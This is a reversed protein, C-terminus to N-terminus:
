MRLYGPRVLVANKAACDHAHAVAAAVDNGRLYASVFGATFADGSGITNVPTIRQAPVHEVRGDSVCLAPRGGRSLACLCGVSQRLELMKDAVLQVAERNDEDERVPVDPFFTKAFEAFNPAVVDPGYELANILDEGRIDLAVTKGQGKAARVMEPYFEGSFGPAKSGAIIVVDVTDMLEEYLRMARQQTGAAVLVAEEVVETTTNAARNLLTYCHRIERRSEV